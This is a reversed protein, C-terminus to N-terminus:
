KKKKTRKAKTAPASSTTFAKHVSVGLMMGGVVVLMVGTSWALPSMVMDYGDIFSIGAWVFIIAAIGMFIDIKHQSTKM